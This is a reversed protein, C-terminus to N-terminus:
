KPTILIKERVIGTVLVLIERVKVLLGSLFLIGSNGNVFLMM